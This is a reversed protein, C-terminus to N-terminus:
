FAQEEETERLSPIQLITRYKEINNLQENEVRILMWQCRRFAELISLAFLYLGFKELWSDVQTPPMLALIWVWRLAFNSVMAFYYVWRPFILKERLGFKKHNKTRLLGWSIYNDWYLNYITKVIYLGIWTYFLETSDNRFINAIYVLITVFYKLANYGHLSMKTDRYRRVSQALRFWYTVIPIAHNIPKTSKCVVVNGTM